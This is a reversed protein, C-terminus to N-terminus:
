SRYTGLEEIERMVDEPLLYRPSNGTAITERIRTGSIDLLPLDFLYVKGGLSQQLEMPNTCAHREVWERMESSMPTEFGPRPVSIIHALKVLEEWRDWYSLEALVDSGMILCLPTNPLDERLSKLTDVTYSKGPRILERDDLQLGPEGAIAVRIWKARQGPSAGPQNRHPPRASPILRISELGLKDRLQLALRLHGNHIPDFTGGLIGIPPKLSSM